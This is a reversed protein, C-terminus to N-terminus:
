SESDWIQEFVVGRLNASTWREAFRESVFTPSARLDPLKFVDCGDLKEARFVHRQILAIRNTGPVTWFQSSQRDLADVVNTANFIWLDVERCKLPLIQGANELMDRMATVAAQKLVLAHSEFWPADADALPRECEDTKELRMPVPQWSLRREGNIESTITEFDEGHVPHAFEYGTVHTPKFVKM